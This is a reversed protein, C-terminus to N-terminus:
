KTLVVMKEGLANHTISSERVGHSCDPLFGCSVGFGECLSWRDKQSAKHPFSLLPNSLSVTAMAVLPGVNRLDM